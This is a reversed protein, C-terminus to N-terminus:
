LPQTLREHLVSPALTDILFERAADAGAAIREDMDTLIAADAGEPAYAARAAAEEASDDWGVAAAALAALVQAEADEARELSARVLEGAAEETRGDDLLVLGLLVRTWSDDPALALAEEMAAAAAAHDGKLALAIGLEGHVTPDDPTLAVAARLHELAEDFLGERALYAGYQIRTFAVDPAMVAAARLAPEADADDFAALGAGALALLHPDQPDQALCRKFLDYAVGPQDLERAAVGLWGLLYADDPAEELARELLDAMEAFRGEDGLGLARELQSQVDMMM